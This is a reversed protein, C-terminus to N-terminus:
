YWEGGDAAIPGASTEAHAWPSSQLLTTTPELQRRRIAELPLDTISGEPWLVQYPAARGDSHVLRVKGPYREGHFLADVLDGIGLQPEEEQTRSNVVASDRLGADSAAVGLSVLELRIRGGRGLEALAAQQLESIASSFEALSRVDCQFISEATSPPPQM